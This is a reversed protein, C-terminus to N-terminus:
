RRTALAQKTMIFELLNDSDIIGLMENNSTVIVPREPSEMVTNYAKDLPTSDTIARVGKRMADGVIANNGLEKLSQIIDSRTLTGVADEGSYVVFNHYSGSLMLDVVTSIRESIQVEGFDKM